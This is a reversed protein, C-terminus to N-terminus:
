WRSNKRRICPNIVNIFSKMKEKGGLIRICYYPKGKPTKYEGWSTKYGIKFIMSKLLHLIHINKNRFEINSYGVHGESEYFGCIFDTPYFVIINYMDLYSLNNFWEVFNISYAIVRIQGKKVISPYNAYFPNMGIKGANEFFKEAFEEKTQQLRIGNKLIEGDGLIVGILYSISASPNLNIDLRGKGIQAESMKKKSEESFSKGKNWPEHYKKYGYPQKTGKKFTGDKNRKYTM